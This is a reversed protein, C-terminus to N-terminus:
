VPTADPDLRGHMEFPLNLAYSLGSSAVSSPNV